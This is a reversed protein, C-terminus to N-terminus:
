SDKSYDRCIKRSLRTRGLGMSKKFDEYSRGGLEALSMPENPQNNSSVELIMPASDLDDNQWAVDFAGISIKIKLFEKLLMSRWKEPLNFFDVASGHGTSTPKWDPGLNIRWYHLVLEDGVYIVRLDRRMNLLEQLIIQPNRLRFGQQELLKKLDIKSAVKHVGASSCAHAEKM